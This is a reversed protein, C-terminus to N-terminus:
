KFNQMLNTKINRILQPYEIRQMAIQVPIQHYMPMVVGPELGPIADSNEIIVYM